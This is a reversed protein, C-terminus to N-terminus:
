MDTIGPVPDGVKWIKLQDADIHNLANEKKMRSQM